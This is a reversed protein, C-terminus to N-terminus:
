ARLGCGDVEHRDLPVHFGARPRCEVLDHRGFIAGLQLCDGCNPCTRWGELDDPVRAVCGGVDDDHAGVPSTEDTVHEHATHGFPDHPYGATRHHRDPM